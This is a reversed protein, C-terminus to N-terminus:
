SEKLSKRVPIAFINLVNGRHFTKEKKGGLDCSDRDHYQPNACLKKTFFTIIAHYYLQPESAGANDKLVM